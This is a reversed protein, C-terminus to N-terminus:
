AANRAGSYNTDTVLELPKQGAKELAEITPITAHQDCGASPTVEVHTIMEVFEGGRM